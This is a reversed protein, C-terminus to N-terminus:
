TMMPMKSAKEFTIHRQFTSFGPSSSGSPSVPEM